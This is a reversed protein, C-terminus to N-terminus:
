VAGADVGVYRRVLRIPVRRACSPCREPRRETADFVVAVPGWGRCHDCGPSRPWITALEALRKETTMM